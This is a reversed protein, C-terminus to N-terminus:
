LSSNLSSLSVSKDLLTVEATYQHQEGMRIPWWLRVDEKSMEFTKKNVQAADGKHQFVVKGSDSKVIVAYRQDEALDGQVEFSVHCTASLDEAVESQIHFDEIRSSYSELTVTRFPGCTM